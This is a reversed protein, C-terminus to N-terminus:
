WGFGAGLGVSRHNGSFAGGLTVTARDSIARQYGLSLASEGSQFGVGVGLRNPTRIGAASTAMNLMAASMAGQQDIRKDQRRFRDDVEGQYTQFTDAMASYRQDTYTNARTVGSDLQAKNVADTDQTGAAVNAIQREAGASGVSVTNARDAVSGAGLAVAGTAAAEVKSGAGLAAGSIAEANADRGVAVADASAARAGVGLTNTARVRGDIDRISRDLAVLAGGVNDYSDGQVRYRLTASTGGSERGAAGGLWALTQEMAEFLQGGNVAERSGAGTQGAAVNVLRRAAPGGTGDGSGFSVVADAEARSGSGVAVSDTGSASAGRGLATAGAAESRAAAGVSTSGEGLAQSGNGAATSAPASATAAGKGGARFAETRTELQAVNVADTAESGPALHVIQRENGASGVSVTAIRDAVAGHGLAVSRFASARAAAGLALGAVGQARADYGFAASLRGEAQSFSGVGSAGVGQALSRYGVAVAQRNQVQAQPGISTAYGADAEARANAGLALSAAGSAWANHGAALASQATATAGAGLAMAAAAAAHSAEGVAVSETGQAYAGAQSGSGGQAAFYVPIPEPEPEPAPAQAWAPAFMALCWATFLCKGGRQIRTRLGANHSPHM